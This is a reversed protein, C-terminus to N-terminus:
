PDWFSIWYTIGVHFINASFGEHAAGLSLGLFASCVAAPGNCPESSDSGKGLNAHLYEVTLSWAGYLGLETGGGAGWGSTSFDRGASFSAAPRAAGTPTYFLESNHAGASLIAGVRLYALWPNAAYGIRPGIIAFESPADRISVSYKGQPVPAGSYNFSDNRTKSNWYDLDVGVGWVFRKYQFNKGIQLGGVLAGTRSCDRSGAQSANTSNVTGGDLAWINCTSSSSDGFNFGIYSGDWPTTDHADAVRVAAIGALALCITCNGILSRMAGKGTFPACTRRM